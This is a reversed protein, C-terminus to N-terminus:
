WQEHQERRTFFGTETPLIAGGGEIIQCKCMGCTGGGGCASPLFIENGSLTSLVSSGPSVIMERDNIKLTVDGQPTLKQRAYLLLVVLLIMVLAFVVISALVTGALSLGLIM